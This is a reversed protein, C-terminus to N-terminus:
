GRARERLARDLALGAARLLAELAGTEPLPADDPLNDAYLLAVVANGTALPAVFAREPPAGGLLEVLQQDGADSPPGCVPARSELAQRFWAPEDARLALRRIGSDDPGGARPLGVQAMGLAAGDRIMFIAVRSFLEAALRLVLPLVEGRFSPDGLRAAATDLREALSPPADALEDAPGADPEEHLGSLHERLRAGLERERGPEPRALVGDLSAPPLDADGAQMAMVLVPMRPAQSKLRGLIERWDRAGSLPDAPTRSSLLVVPTERRALYHRIREIGLDSRQFIHVRPFEESLGLKIRELEPLEPEIVIVAAPEGDASARRATPRAHGERGRTAAPPLDSLAGGGSFATDAAATWDPDPDKAEAEPGAAPGPPADGHLRREDQLRTGELALFQPNVGAALVLDADGPSVGPPGIEFSFEGVSWQFMGLVTAEVHELRLAAIRELSAAGERTVLDAFSAGGERAERSLRDALAPALAGRAVLLEHLGTPGGALEAARIEGDRFLIWGKGDQARLRLTGSKRSLSIIQLIEGLGLDELSGVLSM